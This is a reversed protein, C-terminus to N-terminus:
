ARAEEPRGLSRRAAEVGRTAHLGMLRVGAQALRAELGAAKAMLIPESTPEVVMVVGAIAGDREGELRKVLAEAPVVDKGAVMGGVPTDSLVAAVKEAVEPMVRELLASPGALVVRRRGAAVDRGAVDKGALDEEVVRSVMERVLARHERESLELAHGVVLPMPAKWVVEAQWAAVGEGAVVVVGAAGCRAVDSMRVATKGCAGGCRGAWPELVSVGAVQASREVVEGIWRLAWAQAAVVIPAGSPLLGAMEEIARATCARVIEPQAAGERQERMMSVVDRNVRV